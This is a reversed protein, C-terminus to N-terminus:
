KVGITFNIKSPSTLSFSFLRTIRQALVRLSASVLPNVGIANGCKDIFLAPDHLAVLSISLHV